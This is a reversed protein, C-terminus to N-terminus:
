IRLYTKILGFYEHIAKYSHYFNGANPFIDWFTYENDYYFGVPKPIIQFGFNNFIMIARKMHYASTVLYIKKSLNLKEFLKATYKANQFTNLSRNEYFTEIDCNCTKLIMDIDKKINEAEKINQIGGGTFIYPLSEQKAILLGYVERKFADPMAKLVDRSNTGGGLVVVASPTITDSKYGHELPYLLANAVFKTSIAWLLVAASFFVIKAKKAFIAALFLIIVFIGPPLLIYTFLKSIIFM